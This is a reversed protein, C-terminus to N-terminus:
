RRWVEAKWWRLVAQVFREPSEVMGVHGGPMQVWWGEAGADPRAIPHLDRLRRITEARAEPVTMDHAGYVFLAPGAFNRWIQSRDPRLAMGMASDAIAAAAAETIMTHLMQVGDADAYDPATLKKAMAENWPGRGFARISAALDYRAKRGAEDDAFPHSHLLALGLVRQPHYEALALAAYGGMSHGGVYARDIQLRNMLEVVDQALREMTHPGAPAASRGYGRMDPILVRGHAALPEAVRDWLRGDLPFGHILLLPAGQGIGLDRYYLEAQDSTRFTPMFVDYRM